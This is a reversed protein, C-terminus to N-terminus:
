LEYDSDRFKPDSGRMWAMRLADAKKGFSRVEPDTNDLKSNTLQAEALLGFARELQGAQKVLRALLLCAKRDDFNVAMRYWDKVLELLYDRSPEIRLYYRAYELFTEPRGRPDWTKMAKEHAIRDEAAAVRNEIPQRISPNKDKDIYDLSIPKLNLYKLYYFNGLRRCADGSGGTAALCMLQEYETFDDKSKMSSDNKESSDQKSELLNYAHVLLAEPDLYDIAAIRHVKKLERRKGLSMLLNIYVSWPKPFGRLIPEVDRPDRTPYMADLVPRLLAIGEKYEGNRQGIM